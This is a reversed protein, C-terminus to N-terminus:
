VTEPGAAPLVVYGARPDATGAHLARIIRAAAGLGHAEEIRIWPDAGTTAATMFRTQDLNFRRTFEAGGWDANRKRIQVPAFFMVPAPGPLAAGAALTRDLPATNAASGVLCDHVLGPGFHGHVRARLGDDGSFDVYTTPRDAAIGDLEDYTVVRDYLGLAETFGRNARSTLGILEPRGALGALCFAAGYATKASASSIVLRAAGFWGNDVLYDALVFSTIFLPRILMQANELAPAWVPDATCRTYQNYASVLPLRHEAQDYFGRETVRGPQMIIRTAIPFYGYFREGPAIGDVDSAEVEAFGWVPMHGHDPRGTPFFDWYRMAEGFAAYTINNTTLAFRDLRLRIRGPAAAPAPITEILAAGLDAKPTLLRTIAPSDTM